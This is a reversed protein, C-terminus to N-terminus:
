RARPAARPSRRLSGPESRLTAESFDTRKCMAAEYGRQPRSTRRKRLKGAATMFAGTALLSLSAPEPTPSAQFTYAVAAFDGSASRFLRGEVTGGGVLHHTVASGGSDPIFTLDAAFTFPSVATCNMDSAIDRCALRTPSATFAMRFPAALLGSAGNLQAGIADEVFLTGSLDVLAGDALTPVGALQVFAVEDELSRGVSFEAGSLHLDEANLPTGLQDFGATVVGATVRIPDAVARVGGGFWMVCFTVSLVVPSVRPM